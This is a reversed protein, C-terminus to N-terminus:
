IKGKTYKWLYIVVPLNMLAVVLFVDDVHFNSYFMTVIFVSSAVMFLANLVNASALNRAIHEASSQSQVITYLPVIYIGGCFAIMTIDILIRIYIFSGALYGKVDILGAGFSGASSSAFYFDLMFLGIGLCAWPVFKPNIKGKLISNCALSGLGVGVSFLTLYLTIIEENGGIVNKTYTPFQSLMTAGVFWFWSIGIIAKFVKKNQYAHRIVKWTETIFNWGINVDKTSPAANPIKKSFLYGIIALMIVIASVIIVGGEKLIFLGGVITGILIAVFTGAEVLGNGAILEKKKLHTPLISYKLPGFFASQVGAGFLVAMLLWINQLYFGISAFVMLIIEAIKIKRILRSKEHKDALQGAMASFLFFPLIFLGAAVTVVISSNLGEKEAIHYTILVVLANKFVNDNFANLFQTLFLPLFRRTTLLEFQSNM